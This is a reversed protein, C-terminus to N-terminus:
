LFSPLGVEHLMSMFGALDDNEDHVPSTQVENLFRVGGRKYNILTQLSPERRRVCESLRKLAEADTEPGTLIKNTLGEVEELDYGCMELWPKNAHTIQHPFDKSCLVIPDTMNELLDALQVNRKEDRRQRKCAHPYIDPNAYNKPVLPLRQLEEPTRKIPPVSGDTILEAHLTGVYFMGGAALECTITNLFPTGDRRYNLLVEHCAGQAELATHLAKLAPGVTKGGQLFACTNGVVETFKYGTIESWARNTHVISYPPTSRTVIRADGTLSLADHLTIASAMGAPEGTIVLVFGCVHEVPPSADTNTGENDGGRKGILGGM